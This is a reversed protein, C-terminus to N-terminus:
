VIRNSAYGKHDSVIRVVESTVQEPTLHENIALIKHSACVREINKVSIASTVNHLKYFIEIDPFVERVKQLDTYQVLEGDVLLASLSVSTNYDDKIKEFIPATEIQEYSEFLKKYGHNRSVVGIYM